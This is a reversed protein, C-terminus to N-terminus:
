LRKIELKQEHKLLDIEKCKERIDKQIETVTVGDISLAEVGRQAYSELFACQGEIKDVKAEVFKKLNYFEEGKVYKRLTQADIDSQLVPSVVNNSNNQSMIEMDFSTVENQQELLLKIQQKLSKSDNQLDAIQKNM